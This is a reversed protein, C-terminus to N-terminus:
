LRLDTAYRHPYRECREYVARCLCSQVTPGIFIDLVGRRAGLVVEETGRFKTRISHWARDLWGDEERVPDSEALHSESKACGSYFWTRMLETKNAGLPGLSDPIAAKPGTYGHFQGLLTCRPKVLKGRPRLRQSQISQFRNLVM